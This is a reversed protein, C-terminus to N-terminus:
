HCRAEVTSHKDVIIESEDCSMNSESPSSNTLLAKEKIRTLDTIAERISQIGQIAKEVDSINQFGYRKRAQTTNM